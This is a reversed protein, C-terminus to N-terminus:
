AFGFTVIPHRDLFDLDGSVVVIKDIHAVVTIEKDHRDTGGPKLLLTGRRRHCDAAEDFRNLNM